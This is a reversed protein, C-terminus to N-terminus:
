LNARSLKCKLFGGSLTEFVLVYEGPKEMALLAMRSCTEMSAGMTTSGSSYFSFSREVAAAEGQPIGRVVVSTSVVSVSDVTAYTCNYNTCASTTQARAAVLPALALAALALAVAHRKM